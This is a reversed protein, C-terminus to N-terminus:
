GLTQPGNVIGGTNYYTIVGNSLSQYKSALYQIAKATQEPPPTLPYPIEDHTPPFDRIADDWSEYWPVGYRAALAPKDVRSVSCTCGPSCVYPSPALALIEAYQARFGGHHLQIAGSARIVGRVVANRMITKPFQWTYNPRYYGYFGCGCGTVPVHQDEHRPPGLRTAWMNVTVGDCHATNKGREWTSIGRFMPSLMPVGRKTEIDWARYGIVYDTYLEVDSMM